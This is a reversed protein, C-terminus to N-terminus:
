MQTLTFDTTKEGDRRKWLILSGFDGRLLGLQLQQPLQM